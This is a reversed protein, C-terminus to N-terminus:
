VHSVETTCALIDFHLANFSESRSVRENKGSNSIQHQGEKNHALYDVAAGAINEDGNAKCRQNALSGVQYELAWSELQAILTQGDDVGELAEGNAPLIDLIDLHSVGQLDLRGSALLNVRPSSSRGTSVVRAIDMGALGAAKTQFLDDAGTLGRSNIRSDGSVQYAGAMAFMAGSRLSKSDIAMVCGAQNGDSGIRQNSKSQNRKM